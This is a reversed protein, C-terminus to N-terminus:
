RLARPWGAPSAKAAAKSAHMSCSTPSITTSERPPGGELAIRFGCPVYYAEELLAYLGKPCLADGDQYDVVLAAQLLALAVLAFAGEAAHELGVEGAADDLSLGRLTSLSHERHAEPLLLVVESGKGFREPHLKSECIFRHAQLTDLEISRVATNM